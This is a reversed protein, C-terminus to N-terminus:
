VLFSVSHASNLQRCQVATCFLAITNPPLNYYFKIYDNEFNSVERVM